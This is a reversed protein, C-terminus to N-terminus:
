DRLTDWQRQCTGFWGEREDIPSRVRYGREIESLILARSGAKMQTVVSVGQDQASPRSLLYIRHNQAVWTEPKGAKAAIEPLSLLEVHRVCGKLPQSFLSGIVLLLGILTLFPHRRIWNGGPRREGCGPCRTSRVSTAEGCVRCNWSKAMWGGSLRTM